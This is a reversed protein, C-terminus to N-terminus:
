ETAVGSLEGLAQVTMVLTAFGLRFDADSYTSFRDSRQHWHPNSGAGIEGVRQNERVSVAATHDMFAVSDTNSMNDGVEAPYETPVGLAAAQLAEAL